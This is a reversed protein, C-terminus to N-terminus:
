PVARPLRSVVHHLVAAGLSDPLQAEVELALWHPAAFRRCKVADKETMVVRLGDEFALERASFRHHDGFPHEVPDLGLAHLTNFFRQPNGIGAVAHVREGAVPMHESLVADDHVRRWAGPQLHMRGDVRVGAPAEADGNAVVYDVELLRAPAERLPGLPLCHGNGLWRGADLVCIEMTRALRYHQLGDDSLIVEVPTAALLERAVQAREAGVWVPGDIRSALLLAEDGCVSPDTADIVRMPRRASGGYGRSVVGVRLGRQVLARALAIVLPTKGTGGVALNGVVVVPVSLSGALRSDRQRRRRALTIFASELPQLLLRLGRSPPAHWLTLLQRELVARM